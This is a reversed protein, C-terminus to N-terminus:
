VPEKAGGAQDDQVHTKTEGLERKANLKYYAHNLFKIGHKDALDGRTGVKQKM